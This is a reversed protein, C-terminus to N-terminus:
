RPRKANLQLVIPMPMGAPPAESLQLGTLVEDRIANDLGPDGTSGALRARIVRGNSDSWIQARVTLEATRTKRNNRLAESVRAQVQGAYWGFRSRNAAGNGLGAGSSGGLNFANSSGDGKINTGIPPQDPPKPPEQEPHEEPQFTQQDEIKEPPVTPAPPPPPPPPLSVIVLSPARRPTTASGIVFKIASVAGVGVVVIMSIALRYRQFFTRKDEEDDDELFPKRVAPLKFNSILEPQIRPRTAQRDNQTRDKTALM